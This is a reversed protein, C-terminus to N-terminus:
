ILSGSTFSHWPYPLNLHSGIQFYLYHFYTKEIILHYIKYENVMSVLMSAQMSDLYKGAQIVTCIQTEYTIM